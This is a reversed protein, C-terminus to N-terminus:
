GLSDHITEHEGVKKKNLFIIVKNTQQVSCLSLFYLLKKIRILGWSIQRYLFIIYKIYNIKLLILNLFENLKFNIYFFNQNRQCHNFLNSFSIYYIVM